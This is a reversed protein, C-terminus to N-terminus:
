TNRRGTNSHGRFIRLSRGPKGFLFNPVRNCPCNCTDCRTSSTLICFHNCIIPDFPWHSIFKFPLAQACDHRVSNIYWRKGSPVSFSWWFFGRELCSDDCSLKVSHMDLIFIMVMIAQASKNLPQIPILCCCNYAPIHLSPISQSVINICQCM